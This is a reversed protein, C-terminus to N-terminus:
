EGASVESNARARKGKSESPAAEVRNRGLDKASYLARDAAKIVEHADHTDSQAAAVGISVTVSTEVAAKRRRSVKCSVRREARKRTSRAPGRAVFVDDQITRRLKEAHFVADDVDTGPYLVAFEEGGCRYAKGGGTVRALHAAVNRLVQDGTDHGFTDNFNKFHDVDVMAISYTEGLGALAENFARRGPLGTLEDHYAIWHSREIVAVALAFGALGIYIEGAAPRRLLL